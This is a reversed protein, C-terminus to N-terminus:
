KKRRRAPARDERMQSLDGEWIGSGFFAPLSQIKRMRIVEELATNVAASYTRAALVRTAEELLQENLVLNTRKM